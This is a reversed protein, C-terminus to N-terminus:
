RGVISGEDDDFGYPFSRLRIFEGVMIKIRALCPLPLSSAVLFIRAAGMTWPLVGEVHGSTEVTDGLGDLFREFGAGIGLRRELRIADLPM